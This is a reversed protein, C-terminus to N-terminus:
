RFADQGTLAKGLALTHMEVTGEYTLLDDLGLLDM